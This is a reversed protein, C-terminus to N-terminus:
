GDVFNEMEISANKNTLIIAYYVPYEFELQIEVGIGIESLKNIFLQSKHKLLDFPNDMLTKTGDKNISFFNGEKDVYTKGSIISADLIYIGENTLLVHDYQVMEGECELTIDYLYKLNKNMRLIYEAVEYDGDIKAKYKEYDFQVWRKKSENSLKNILNEMDKLTKLGKKINNLAITNKKANFLLSSTVTLNNKQHNNINESIIQDEITEELTIIKPETKKSKNKFLGIFRVLGSTIFLCIKKIISIIKPLIYGIISLAILALPIYIILYTM